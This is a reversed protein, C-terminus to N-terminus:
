KRSKEQNQADQLQFELQKIQTEKDQLQKAIDSDEASIPNPSLFIIFFSVFAFFLKKM